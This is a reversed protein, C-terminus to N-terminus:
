PRYGFRELVRDLYASTSQQARWAPACARARALLEPFGAVAHALAASIAQGNFADFVIGAGRGEALHGAMWTGAPVVTTKGAAVAESFVGSSRLSMLAPDYPLLVVDARSILAHYALPDLAGHVLEVNSASKVGAGAEKWLAESGAPAVQVLFRLHPNRAVLEPVLNFGKEARSHGLIAVCPTGSEPSDRPTDPLYAHMMPLDAVPHGLVQTFLASLERGNAALLLREAPVVRGLQLAAFRYLTAILGLRRTGLAFFNEVIFNLVLRPRREPPIQAFALACGYVENQLASPVLLLDDPGFENGAGALGEAFSRGQLILDELPGALPDTSARDYPGFDFVPNADLLQVLAPHAQRHVFVHTEIGRRVCEDRLGSTNGYHHGTHDLLGNDLIWARM